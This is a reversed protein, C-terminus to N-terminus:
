NLDFRVYIIGTNQNIKKDEGSKHGWKNRYLGIYQNKKHTPRGIVNKLEYVYYLSIFKHLVLITKTNVTYQMRICCYECTM